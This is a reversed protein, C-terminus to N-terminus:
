LCYTVDNGKADYVIGSPVKRAHRRAEEYGKFSMSHGRQEDHDGFCQFVHFRLGRDSLTSLKQEFSM